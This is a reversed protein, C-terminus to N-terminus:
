RRRDGALRLLMLFLNIFDLYLTLAGFIAAKRQVDGGEGLGVSLNKIKQTDYATLGAFVVVGIVSYIFSGNGGMMSPIFWSLIAWGILGFLAMGCFAGVPGLDRKTTYGILSLGAFGCATTLFVSAISEHTYMLFVTSLTVGTLAAYVLYIATAASASLRQIAASLVIVAGIQAIILGYFLVKNQVIAIIAELNNGLYSSILATILIGGTMWAYVSRMFTARTDAVSYPSSYSPINTNM